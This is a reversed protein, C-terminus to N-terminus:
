QRFGFLTPILSAKIRKNIIIILSIGVFVALTTIIAKLPMFPISYQNFIMNITGAVPIHLLYISFSIKGLAYFFSKGRKIKACLYILIVAGFLEFVFSSMSFYTFGITFGKEFYRALFLVLVLSSLTILLPIGINIFRNMLDYKRFLLGLAFFGMWNLPNLYPNMPIVDAYALIVLNLIIIPIIIIQIRYRIYFFLLFNLFLIPIFYYISGDGIIFRMYSTIGMQGSKQGFFTSVFFVLTGCFIWPMMITKLKKLFFQGITDRNKYFFYGSIFLFVPVGILGLKEFIPLMAKDFAKPAINLVSTHAIIVSIIASGKLCYFFSSEDFSQNDKALKEM